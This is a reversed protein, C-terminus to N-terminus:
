DKLVMARIRQFENPDDKMDAGRFFVVILVDAVFIAAAWYVWTPM